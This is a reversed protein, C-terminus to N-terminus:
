RGRAARVAALLAEGTTPKHLLAVAGAATVRGALDADNRATLVVVPVTCGQSELM